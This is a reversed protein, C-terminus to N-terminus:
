VEPLFREAGELLPSCRVLAPRRPFESVGFRAPPELPRLDGLDRGDLAARAAVVPRYGYIRYWERVGSATWGYSRVGRAGKLVLRGVLPRLVLDELRVWTPSRALWLPRLTFIRAPKGADLRMELPGARVELSSDDSRVEFNVVQVYDFRYVGGVFRAVEDSPALLTRKGAPGAWMVDNMPGLPGREWVGVVFRDGSAFGAAAITGELALRPKKDFM